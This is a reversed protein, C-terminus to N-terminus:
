MLCKGLDPQSCDANEEWGTPLSHSQRLEGNAPTHRSESPIRLGGWRRRGRWLCSAIGAARETLFLRFAFCLDTDIVTQVLCIDLRSILPGDRDNDPVFNYCNRKYTLCLNIPTPCQTMKLAHTHTHTHTHRYIYIYIYIYITTKSGPWKTGHSNPWKMGHENLVVIM